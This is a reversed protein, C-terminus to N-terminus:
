NKEIKIKDSLMLRNNPEITLVKSSKELQDVNKALIGDLRNLGQEVQFRLVGEKQLTAQLQYQQQYELKEIYVPQVVASDLLSVKDITKGSQNDIYLTFQQPKQQFWVVALMAILVLSLLLFKKM